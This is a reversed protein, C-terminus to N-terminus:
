PIASLMSLFNIILYMISIMPTPMIDIPIENDMLAVKPVEGIEHTGATKHRAKGKVTPSNVISKLASRTM